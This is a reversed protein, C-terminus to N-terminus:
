KRQSRNVSQKDTLSGRGSGTSFNGEPHGADGVLCQKFDHNYFAESSLAARYSKDSFSNQISVSCFTMIMYYYFLLSVLFEFFMLTLSLSYEPTNLNRM